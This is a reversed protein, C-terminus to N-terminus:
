DDQFGIEEFEEKADEKWRWHFNYFSVYDDGVSTLSLESEEDNLIKGETSSPNEKKEVINLEEDETSCLLEEDEISNVFMEDKLDKWFEHALVFDDNGLHIIGIPYPHGNETKCCLLSGSDGEKSFPTGLSTMQEIM